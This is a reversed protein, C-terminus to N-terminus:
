KFIKLLNGPNQVIPAAPTVSATGEGTSPGINSVSACDVEDQKGDLRYYMIRYNVHNLNM